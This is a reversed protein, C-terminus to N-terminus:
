VAEIDTTSGGDGDAEPHDYLYNVMLGHAERMAKPSRDALFNIRALRAGNGLHFRAVQDMPRGRRDRAELLYSAAPNQQM